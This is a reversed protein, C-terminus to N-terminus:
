YATPVLRKLEELWNQVVILNAPAVTEDSGSGELKIMLFRQGDRSVDYTCGKSADGGVFYRGQFLKTVAGASFSPVREIRVSM